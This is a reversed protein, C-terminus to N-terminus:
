KRYFDLFSIIKILKIILKFVKFFSDKYNKYNITNRIRTEVTNVEKKFNELKIIYPKYLYQILNNSAKKNYISFGSSFFNKSILLGHFHFFILKNKNIFIKNERVEVDKSNVNWPAVNFSPSLVKIKKFKKPWSDLYKQDAYKEEEVYDYCWNICNNGWDKLCIKSTEDNKFTLWGVNFKGFRQTKIGHEIIIISNNDLLNIINKPSDFFFLDSDIYNIIDVNFNELIYLPLFPSLTFYYEVKERNKKAYKLVLYKEEIEKLSIIQINKKKIKKLYDYSFDDLCLCYFTVNKEYEIISERCALFKSLYNKDFYTCLNVKM